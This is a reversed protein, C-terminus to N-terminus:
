KRLSFWPKGNRDQNTAQQNHRRTGITVDSATGDDHTARCAATRCGACSTSHRIATDVVGARVTDHYIGIIIMYASPM